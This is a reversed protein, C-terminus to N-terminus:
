SQSFSKKDLYLVFNMQNIFENLDIYNDKNADLYYFFKNLKLNNKNLINLLYIYHKYNDEFIQNEYFKKTDEEIKKKDVFFDKDVYNIIINKLDDETIKGDNDYDFKKM